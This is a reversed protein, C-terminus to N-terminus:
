VTIKVQGVAELPEASIVSFEGITRGTDTKLRVRDATFEQTQEEILVTFSKEIVPEGDSQALRNVKVPQIQCPIPDGWLPTAIRPFGTTTDM